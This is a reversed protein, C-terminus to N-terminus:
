NLIKNRITYPLNYTIMLRNEKNQLERPLQAIVEPKNLIKSLKIYEIAKNQFNIICINKPPNKKNSTKPRYLKSDIIDLMYIYYQDLNQQLDFSNNNRFLIQAPLQKLTKKTVTNLIVHIQFYANKIYNDIILHMQKFTADAINTTPVSKTRPQATRATGRSISPFQLGVLKNIDEYRARDNLGYLYKTRLTKMWHEEWELRKRM